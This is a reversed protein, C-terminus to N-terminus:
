QLIEAVIATLIYLKWMYQTCVNCWWFSLIGLLIEAALVSYTPLLEGFYKPVLPEWFIMNEHTNLACIIRFAFHYEGSDKPVLLQQFIRNEHTNVAHIISFVFWYEGFYKPVLLQRFIGNEHTNVAHIISFAFWYGRFYITSSIIAHVWRSGMSWLGRVCSTSRSLCQMSSWCPLKHNFFYVGPLCWRWPNIDMNGIFCICTHGYHWGKRHHTKWFHTTSPTSLHTPWYINPECLLM